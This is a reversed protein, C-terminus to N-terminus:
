RGATSALVWDMMHRNIPAMPGYQSLFSSGEPAIGPLRHTTGFANPVLPLAEQATTLFEGPM